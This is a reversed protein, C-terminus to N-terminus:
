NNKYVKRIFKAYNLFNSATQKDFNTAQNRNRQRDCRWMQRKNSWQTRKIKTQIFKQNEAAKSTQLEFIQWLVSGRFLLSSPTSRTMISIIEFIQCLVSGRFLLSSSTSRTMIFIIEFIQCLVSGRFLLSSPTSRTMISILFYNSYYGCFLICFFISTQM